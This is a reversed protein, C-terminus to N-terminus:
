RPRRRARVAGAWRVPASLRWSTSSTFEQRVTALEHELQAVRAELQHSRAVHHDHWHFLERVRKVAGPPLLVPESDLRQRIIGRAAEWDMDSHEVGSHSGVIWRRYVSTPEPTCAVGCLPALRLILDWDELVLLEDDFTIGFEQMAMRPFAFGCLPSWNDVLHGLFDFHEPYPTSPRSVAEYGPGNVREATDQRAVVARVIAGPNDDAVRRFEEIWHAMVVDDDDLITIYRGRAEAVGVNLPRGRRGGEVRVIRVRAAFDPPMTELMQEIRAVAADSAKHCLLLVEYDDCTQAALTLLADHLTDPRRGQTRLLVTAFPAAPPAEDSAVVPDGPTYARVFQNVTMGPSGARIGRLLAGVPTSATQVALGEPFHQDSQELEFDNEGIQHWGASAPVSVISDSGYFAVHTRDLLGTDTVDWRGILLKTGLDVHTVNPVSVVLPADGHARSWKALAALVAPGATLHELADLMTIAALPRDALKEELVGVVDDARDLDLLATEFGRTQLDDLGGPDLDCGIYTFGAERCPEAIAGYGAGLDLVVGGPIGHKEVLGVVHGYVSAADYTFDYKGQSM